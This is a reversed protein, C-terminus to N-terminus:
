VHARGIEKKAKTIGSDLYLYLLDNVALNEGAIVLDEPGVAAAGPDFVVQVGETIRKTTPVGKETVSIMFLRVARGKLDIPFDFSKGVPVAALFQPEKNGEDNFRWFTLATKSPTLSDYVVGNMALAHPIDAIPSLRQALHLAM